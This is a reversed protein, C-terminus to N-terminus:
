RVVRQIVLEKGRQAESAEILRAKKEITTEFRSPV